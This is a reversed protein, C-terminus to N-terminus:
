KRRSTCCVSVDPVEMQRRWFMTPAIMFAVPKVSFGVVGRSIKADSWAILLVMIAQSHSKLGCRVLTSPQFAAAESRDVRRGRYRNGPGNPDLSFDSDRRSLLISAVHTRDARCWKCGLNISGQKVAHQKSTAAWAIACFYALHVCTGAAPLELDIAHGRKGM